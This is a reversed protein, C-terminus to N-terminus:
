QFTVICIVSEALIQKDLLYHFLRGKLLDLQVASDTTRHIKGNLYWYHDGFSDSLYGTYKKPIEYVKSGDKLFYHHVEFLESM